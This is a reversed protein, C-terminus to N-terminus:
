DIINGWDITEDDSNNVTIDEIIDEVANTFTNQANNVSTILLSNIVFLARLYTTKTM